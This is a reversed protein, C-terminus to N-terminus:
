ANSCNLLSIDWIDIDLVLFHSWHHLRPENWCFILFNLALLHWCEPQQLESLHISGDKYELVSWPFCVDLVNMVWMYVCWMPTMPTSLTRSGLRQTDGPYCAAAKHSFYLHLAVQCRVQSTNTPNSSIISASKELLNQIWRWVPDTFIWMINPDTQSKNQQPFQTWKLTTVAFSCACDNLRRNIFVLYSLSRSSAQNRASFDHARAPLGDLVGGCLSFLFVNKLLKFTSTRRALASASRCPPQLNIPWWRNKHMRGELNLLLVHYHLDILGGAMWLWSKCLLRVSQGNALRM